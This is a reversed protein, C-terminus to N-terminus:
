QVAGAVAADKTATAAAVPATLPAYTDVIQRLTAVIMAKGLANFTRYKMETVTAGTAYAAATSGNVARTVTLVKGVKATVLMHETGIAIVANAGIGVSVDVTITTDAFLVPATVTTITGTGQGAMWAILAASGTADLTVAPANITTTQALGLGAVLLLSLTLNILM